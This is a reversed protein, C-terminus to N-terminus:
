SIILKNQTPDVAIVRVELEQGIFKNLEAFIKEKDGEEVRPYHQSSLQSVPLFAKQREIITMLGGRNAEQITAKVKVKEEYLAALKQWNIDVGAQTLSLEIFGDKNEVEIIKASIVEDPKLNKIINKALYFERGYVIGTRFNGLDVYVKNGEQAIVHGEVVDGAKPPPISFQKLLSEM